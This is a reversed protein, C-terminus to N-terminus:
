STLIYCITVSSGLTPTNGTTDKLRNVFVGAITPMDKTYYEYSAKDLIEILELVRKELDMEAKLKKQEYEKLLSNLITNPM